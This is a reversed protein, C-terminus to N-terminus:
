GKGGEGTPTQKSIEQKREQEVAAIACSLDGALCYVCKYDDSALCTTPCERQRHITAVVRKAEKLLETVMPSQSETM